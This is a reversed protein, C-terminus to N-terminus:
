RNGNYRNVSTKDMTRVKKKNKILYRRSGMRTKCNDLLGYLSMNKEEGPIRLVNL